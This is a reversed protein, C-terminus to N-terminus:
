NKKWIVDSRNENYFMKYYYSSKAKRLASTIENRCRKFMKLVDLDKTRLFRAYLNNKKKIMKLIDKTVWPKRSKKSPTIKRLKFCEKYLSCFQHMFSDYAEDASDKSLVDDWNESEVRRRFVDLTEVNVVPSFYANEHCPNKGLNHIDAFFYIPLHDSIDSCVVGASIRTRTINTIFLDLLTESLSTVRTSNTIVNFFGFSQFLSSFEVQRVTACNMDINFDGGLILSYGNEGVFQFLRELFGLFASSDGSPPRYMVALVTNGLQVCLSEYNETMTTIDTMLNCQTEKKIYMAVGGGRRSCRNLYFTAYNDFDLVDSNQTFWTETLMIVDFSFGFDNLFIGLEDSKNRASRVNLHLVSFPKNTKNKFSRGLDSPFCVDSNNM